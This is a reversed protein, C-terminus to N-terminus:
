SPLIDCLLQKQLYLLGRSKSDERVNAIFSIIMFRNAIQNYVVKAITTKGIGGLGYIGIMRVDNSLPDIMQPIIEELRDDMGILNKDVHLLLEQRIRLWITLVIDEIVQAEHRGGLLACVYTLWCLVFWLFCKM